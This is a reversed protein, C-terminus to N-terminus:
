GGAIPPFIALDDGDQLVYDLERQRSAVFFQKTQDAPLKLNQVLDRLRSGEPLSVTFSEGPALGPPGFRRLTAYLRVTVHLM